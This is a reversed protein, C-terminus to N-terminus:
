LGISLHFVLIIIFIIFWLIKISKKLIQTRLSVTTRLYAKEVHSKVGTNEGTHELFGPEKSKEEMLLINRYVPFDAFDRLITENAEM